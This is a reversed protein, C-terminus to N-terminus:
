LFQFPKLTDSETKFVAYINAFRSALDGYDNRKCILLTGASLTANNIAHIFRFIHLQRHEINAKLPFLNDVKSPKARQSCSLPRQGQVGSRMIGVSGWIPKYGASTTGGVFSKPDTETTMPRFKINRVYSM